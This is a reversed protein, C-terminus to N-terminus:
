GGATLDTVSGDGHVLFPYNHGANVYSLTREQSDFVGWFFTVFKNGGTNRCMLDNVLATLEALPLDLPVLARITAQLNAMLLAAPSGKGSVDGIAMIQRGDQLSIVDYYDGGVQKSSINTAAIEVGPIM